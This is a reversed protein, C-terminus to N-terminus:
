VLYLALCVLTSVQKQDDSLKEASCLTKTVQYVVDISTVIFAYFTVLYQRM